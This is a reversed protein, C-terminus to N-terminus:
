VDAERSRSFRDPIVTNDHRGRDFSKPRIGPRVSCSGRVRGIAYPSIAQAVLLAVWIAESKVESDGTLVQILFRAAHRDGLTFELGYRALITLGVWLCGITILQGCTPPYSQRGLYAWAETMVLVLITGAEALDVASLAGGSPLLIRRGVDVIVFACVTGLWPGFASTFVHGTRHLGAPIGHNNRM